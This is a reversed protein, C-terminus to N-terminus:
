VFLYDFLISHFEQLDFAFFPDFDALAVNYSGLIPIQFKQLILPEHLDVSGSKAKTEEECDFVVNIAQFDLVLILTTLM